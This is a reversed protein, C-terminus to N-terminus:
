KAEKKLWEAYFNVINDTYIKVAEELTGAYNGGAANLHGGGGYYRASFENVPFTGKSRLSIKIGDPREMIFATAIIDKVQLPYNVFGETDGTNYNYQELEKADLTMIALPYKEIRKLKRSLTYGLLKLRRVTKNNFVKEHINPKDIGKRLLNAMVIYLEPDSSNYSLGGTDTLIGTYINTASDIDIYQELNAQSLINYVLECTASAKPFSITVDAEMKPDLHHDIMVTPKSLTQLKEGLSKIRKLDNYDMIFIVDAADIIKECDEQEREYTRLTKYGPMWSYFTPALDPTIITVEKGMNMLAKRLGLTSGLADGDPNTHCTLVFTNNKNIIEIFRNIDTDAIVM